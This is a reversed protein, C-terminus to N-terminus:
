NQRWPLGHFKWGGKKGRKANADPDGEFGELINYAEFGLSQARQSSPVSRLGSRCLMVIKSGAPVLEKLQQDFNPNIEMGPWIKWEIAPAEPIFGVWAREANTRIDLLVAEGSQWWQYALQVSVDGAYGAAEDVKRPADIPAGADHRLGLTLNAPVAEDMRKPKPLNLNGMLQVFADVTRLQGNDTIRVNSSKELAITSSTQGKYDHGPWVTTSDPLSFLISSISHHLAQPSGSQFDTRGCGGILLTDGTFVNDGWVFSMSGGTHGPTHLAKIQQLGFHLVDGDKLQIASPKIGCGEPTAAQAGTHEILAAASTIHDAHAHTEMVYRLKVRHEALVSMDRALQDDVPDIIVAERTSSDILIYTYTSSAADFLQIPSFVNQM